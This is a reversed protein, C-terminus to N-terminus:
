TGHQCAYMARAPGTDHSPRRLACTCGARASTATTGRIGALWAAADWPSRHSRPAHSRPGRLLASSAACCRFAECSCLREEASSAALSRAMCWASSAGNCTKSCVMFSGTSKPMNKKPSAFAPALSSMTPPTVAATTMERRMPFVSPMVKNPRSATWSPKPKGFPTVTSSRTAIDATAPTPRVMASKMALSAKASGPRWPWALTPATSETVAPPRAQAILARGGRSQGPRSWSTTDRFPARLGVGPMAALAPRPVLSSQISSHMTSSMRCM